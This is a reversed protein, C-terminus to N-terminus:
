TQRWMTYYKKRGQVVRIRKGMKKTKDKSMLCHQIDKVWLEEAQLIYDTLPKEKIKRDGKSKLLDAFKLVVATARLLKNLCGFRENDIIKSIVQEKDTTTTLSSTEAIKKVREKLKLEKIAESPDRDNTYSPKNQNTKLWEPGTFWVGTKLEAPKAGRSPIDASNDKSVCHNWQEPPVLSTIELVRNQM